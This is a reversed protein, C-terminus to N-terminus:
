NKESAGVKCTGDLLACRDIKAALIFDSETLGDIKHTWLDVKLEGWRVLLDPHHQEHEAIEAIKKALRMPKAFNDFKFSRILKKDNEVTWNNLEKLLPAIENRTLAPVGGTCPVCKKEALSM